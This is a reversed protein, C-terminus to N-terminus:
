LLFEPRSASAEKGKLIQDWGRLRKVLDEEKEVYHRLGTIEVQYQLGSLTRVLLYRPVAHTGNALWYDKCIVEFEGASTKYTIRQVEREKYSFVAEFSGANVVWAVRGEDRGLKVQKMDVYMSEAMISDARARAEPDEPRLPNVETKKATRDKSVTVLYRKYDALFEVKERNILESNLKVPVGISKLYSVIHTGNNLLISNLLGYFLGKEVQQLEGSLTFPGFSPYYIKHELSTESFTGNSYRAQAVKLLDGTGKTFFIRFHDANRQDDLLSTDSTESSTEGSQKKVVLSVSLGNAVVEPNSGHRFLSEVTPVYAFATHFGLVFILVLFKIM